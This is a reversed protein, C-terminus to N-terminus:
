SCCPLKIRFSTEVNPTSSMEVSGQHALAIDKVIALGIGLGEGKRGSDVRYFREFIHAQHEPPIGKGKDKVIVNVFQEDATLQIGLYRGDKGYRIANDLMNRLAREMLSADIPLHIDEDPVDVDLHVQDGDLIMIYEVAMKRVIESLNHNALRITLDDADQRSIDLMQDLLKDMYRCRQLIIKARGQLELQDKYNGTRIMEACGLMTTLPTRLDHSLNSLLLKRKNEFQQIETFQSRIRHAMSNYHQTLQGLEDKSSDVLEVVPSDSQINLQNLANNLKRIRTNISSFLWIALLFPLSFSLILPVVLTLLSKYTRIMFYVEGQKMASAPISLLLFYSQDGLLAPSLIQVENEELYRAPMNQMMQALDKFTFNPNLGVTDYISQGQDDIWMWRIAPHEAHVRDLTDKLKDLEFSPQQEISDVVSQALPNLDFLAYGKNAVKGIWVSSYGFLIMSMAACLVVLIWLKTRLKM